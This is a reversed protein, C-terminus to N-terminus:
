SCATGASVRCCVRSQRLWPVKAAFLTAVYTFLTLTLWKLVMVYRSYEMFVIGVICILGFAIVYLFAPGVLLLKAADAM